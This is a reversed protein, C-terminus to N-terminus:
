EYKVARRKAESIRKRTELNRKKGTHHLITHEANTMIMLNEIRNDTKIGNKHHVIEDSKLNRGLHEAMVLRHELVYGTSDAMPHEKRLVLVHGKKNIKKGGKWNSGKEGSVSRSRILKNVEKDKSLKLRIAKHQISCISRRFIISLDKNSLYPYMKILKEVEGDSWDIEIM